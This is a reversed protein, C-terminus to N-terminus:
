NKHIFFFRYMIQPSKTTPFFLPMKEGGRSKERKTEPTLLFSLKIMQRENIHHHSEVCVLRKPSKHHRLADRLLFSCLAAKTKKKFRSETPSTEPLPYISIPTHRQTRMKKPFFSLHPGLSADRERRRATRSHPPSPPLLFARACKELTVRPTHTYPGSIKIFFKNSRFLDFFLPKIEASRLVFGVRMSVIGWEYLTTQLPNIEELTSFQSLIRHQARPGVRIRPFM